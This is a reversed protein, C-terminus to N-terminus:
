IHILSLGQADDHTRLLFTDGRADELLEGVADRYRLQSLDGREVYRDSGADHEVLNNTLM